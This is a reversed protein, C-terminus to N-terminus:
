SSLKKLQLQEKRSNLRVNRELEITIDWVDWGGGGRVTLLLDTHAPSM